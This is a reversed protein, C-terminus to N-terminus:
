GLSGKFETINEGKMCKRYQVWGKFNGFYQDKLHSAMAQHEAPSAHIPQSALLRDYLKSDEEFTTEKGEHNLYSVRACRAVSRILNPQVGDVAKFGDEDKDVFPIHWEGDKLQQPTSAQMAEFMQRALECIEPMAMSHYRLAFFNAYDTATCVVSIHAFPELIRNVYQKHAGREHIALAFRMAEQAAERWLRQCDTAKDADLPEGGQMGPKNSLWQSPEALQAAIQDIQKQVPIARSSSANRSFMRHTMFEAHIYRPYKLVFTTIRGGHPAVSDKVIKAEIM